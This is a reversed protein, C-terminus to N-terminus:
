ADFVDRLQMEMGTDVQIVRLHEIEKQRSEFTLCDVGGLANRAERFSAKVYVQEPTLVPLGNLLDDRVFFLNNGASNGAVLSYGKSIALYTLASVSAGYYMNSSHASTRYFDPEYPTSIKAFPGFLSNYECVVIAPRVCDIARWVWYDNGDIDVSLLGIEGSIGSGSIIENINDETIFRACVNLDYRWFIDSKRIALVNEESGDIVLGRWNRHKLLFVTNAETYDQVGFEVFVRNPVAVRQCLYDIIGDEGWQSYVKFEYDRPDGIAGGRNLKSEIRGLSEQIADLRGYPVIRRRVADLVRHFFGMIMSKFYQLVAGRIM